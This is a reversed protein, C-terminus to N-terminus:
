NGRYVHKDDVYLSVKRKLPTQCCITEDKIHSLDTCRATNNQHKRMGKDGHPSSFMQLHPFWIPPLGAPVYVM